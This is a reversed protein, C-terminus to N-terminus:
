AFHLHALVADEPHRFGVVAPSWVMYLRIGMEACWRDIEQCGENSRFPAITWQLAMGGSIISKRQETM